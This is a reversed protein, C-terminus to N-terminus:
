RKSKPIRRRISIKKKRPRERDRYTNRDSNTRFHESEDRYRPEIDVHLRRLREEMDELYHEPFLDSAKQIPEYRNEEEGSDEYRLPHEYDRVREKLYKSSQRNEINGSPLMGAESSFQDSNMMTGRLPVEPNHVRNVLRNKPYGGTGVEEKTLRPLFPPLPHSYASSDLVGDDSEDNIESMRKKIQPTLEIFITSEESETGTDINEMMELAGTEETSEQAPLSFPIVHVTSDEDDNSTTGESVSPPDELTLETTRPGIGLLQHFEKAQTYGTKYMRAKDIDRYTIGPQETPPVDLRLHKCKQSSREKILRRIEHMPSHIVMNIYWWNGGDKPIREDDSCIYMGLINNNGDDYVDVPYPNGFAGDIYTSGKYKLRHFLFPINSSLMVADVCSLDPESEATLYVPKGQSLNFTTVCFRIGTFAYLQNLTPVLGFKKRLLIELKNKVNTNSLLGFNDKIDSLNISDIDHFLNTDVAESLIEVSTYGAVLLLGIISGVSCGVVTHVDDILNVEEFYSLAGLELFGKEGGPPLILVQPKWIEVDRRLVDAHKEHPNLRHDKEGEQHNVIDDSINSHQRVGVERKSTLVDRRSVDIRHAVPGSKICDDDREGKEFPKTVDGETINNSIDSSDSSM